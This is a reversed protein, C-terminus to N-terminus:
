SVWSPLMSDIRDANNILVTFAKQFLDREFRGVQGSRQNLRDNLTDLQLFEKLESPPMLNLRDIFKNLTEEVAQLKTDVQGWDTPMGPIDFLIVAVSVFFGVLAPDTKFIEQGDAIRVAHPKPAPESRAFAHDLRVMLRFVRVFQDVFDVHASSEITDLRAFDDAVRDKVDFESRRSSFSLYLRVVTSGQYQGSDSRRQGDNRNYVEVDNGVSNKLIKILQSYVTELQRSVEWPVQGTNLVLMRYILSNLSKAVWFEVRVKRDELAKDSDVAEMLATTRQMGDIISLGDNDIGSILEAAKESSLDASISIGDDQVGLVIAPIIAGQSIDQVLRSRISKATKTTLAVRQGEIGGRGSYAAKVMALYQGVPMIFLLSHCKVRDDYDINVLQM